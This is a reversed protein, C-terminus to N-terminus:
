CGCRTKHQAPPNWFVASHPRPPQLRCWWLRPRALTLRCLGQSLFGFNIEPFVNSYNYTYVFILWSSYGYKLQNHTQQFQGRKFSAMRSILSNSRQLSTRSQQHGGRAQQQPPLSKGRQFVTSSEEVGGMMVPKLLRRPPRLALPWTHGVFLKQKTSIGIYKPINIEPFFCEVSTRKWAITSPLYRLSRRNLCFPM